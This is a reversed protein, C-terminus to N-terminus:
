GGTIQTGRARVAPITIQGKASLRSAINPTMANPIAFKM